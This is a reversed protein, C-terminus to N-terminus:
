SGTGQQGRQSQACVATMDVWAGGSLQETSTRVTM